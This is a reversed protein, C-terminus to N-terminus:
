MALLLEFQALGSALAQLFRAAPAGDVVQHNITLSLSIHPVFEVETDGQVPKLNIGGVGLIAVQPPNLVPTFSEVGLNGLNTVTFTGGTLEDPAIKGDLCANALRKSEVALQKLSLSNARRITPVMLGRPTDVAMGLHVARYQHIEQGTFLANLAPYRPLLRSVAYLLLDNVTVTQLGFEEASTKLQQRYAQLARADAATNLTLQATTQLSELMRNAIVRRIGQVPVIEIQDEAPVSPEATATAASVPALDAAMIRGSVGSGRAPASYEGSEVMSQALPSMAPRQAIVAQIDQEIIRGGPGSGAATTSVDVQKRHALRRARPSIKLRDDTVAPEAPPAALPAVVEPGGTVPVSTTEEEQDAAPAAPTGVGAPRLAEFDEGPEGVVAINTMVPVEEGEQFFLSLITGDAPSEVEILAKDTEAECLVDGASVRDGVQKRWGVIICSEVTNGQKPMVVATAM